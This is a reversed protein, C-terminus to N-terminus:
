KIETDECIIELLAETNSFDIINGQFTNISKSLLHGDNENVSDSKGKLIKLCFEAEKLEAQKVIKIFVMLNLNKQVEFKNQNRELNKIKEVFNESIKPQNVILLLLMYSLTMRQMARNELCLIQKEFSQTLLIFFYEEDKIKSLLKLIFLDLPPKNENDIVYYELIPVINEGIQKIIFKFFKNSNETYVRKYHYQVSLQQFFVFLSDIDLKELQDSIIFLKTIDQIVLHLKDTQMSKDLKQDFINQGVSAM